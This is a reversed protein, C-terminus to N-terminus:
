VQLVVAVVQEAQNIQVVLVLHAQAVVQVVAVAQVVVEM